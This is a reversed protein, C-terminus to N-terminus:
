EEFEDYPFTDNAQQQCATSCYEINFYCKKKIKLCNQCFCDLMQNLVKKMLPRHEHNYEGILIIIDQPLTMVSKM